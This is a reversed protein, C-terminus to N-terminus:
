MDRAWIVKGTRADLAFVDGKRSLTYVVGNAVTPTAFPGDYDKIGVKENCPYSHKWVIQGTGVDIAFCRTRTTPTAWRTPATM